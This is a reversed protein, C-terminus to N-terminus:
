KHVASVKGTVPMHWRHYDQPALRCIVLSCAQFSEIVEASLPALLDQVNFRDGKIWMESAAAMLPFSLLRCDAPSVAVSPDELADVVRTGPKLKRYFFENM